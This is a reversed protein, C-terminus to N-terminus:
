NDQLSAELKKIDVPIGSVVLYVKDAARAMMQNSLGALDRYERSLRNDPVIGSGVENTVFVVTSNSRRVAEILREVQTCINEYIADFDDINDYSCLLNSIYITMCDFLFFDYKDGNEAIVEHANFPAEFTDWSSPRRQKHLKVRFAMEEDYIQSTAIYAINTGNEKVYREAFSSKGSRAGGTVLIIKGM